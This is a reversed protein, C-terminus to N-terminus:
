YVLFAGIRIAHGESQEAKTDAVRLTLMHEGFPLADYMLHGGVRNFRLCYSDWTRVSKEESGDISYLLDGSDKALMMYIGIGRGTFRYSLTAGPTTAEIYRPYRGCFSKEVRVFEENAAEWADALRAGMRETTTLPAPLQKPTLPNVEKDLLREGLFATVADAYIAYGQDNPHVNDETYTKWDCGETLIRTRLIEGVDIQPIGYHHMVSSHAVRSTIEGGETLKQAMGKTMTHVYVIEAYPNCEFIKRVLTESHILTERYDGGSDNTTFELFILDPQHSLLDHELRFIGLDSGTGGIAANISTVACDPFTKKMWASCLERWCFREESACAGETISGGFYGVTLRMDHRLRYITNNLM